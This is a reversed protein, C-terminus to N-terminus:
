ARTTSHSVLCFAIVAVVVISVIVRGLTRFVSLPLLVCPYGEGIQPFPGLTDNSDPTFGLDM